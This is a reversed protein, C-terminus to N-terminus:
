FRKNKLERKAYRPEFKEIFTAKDLEKFGVGVADPADDPAQSGKEFALFQDIAEIQDSNNKEKINWFVWKRLFVGLISEIHDFKNGYSKKNAIIAIHYGRDDGERDFDNVFDDQAFLGDFLYRIKDIEHLKKDQYLDYLWSAAIRRSTQRCFSYIIHYERKIKGILFLAKYDGKDKYSLDGIFILAEYKSLALMEKHQMDEAKFVKGESVHIHMYERLFSRPNKIYKDRWYKATTKESWTPKFNILDEVACVTFIEFNTVENNDKDINQFHLFKQKLRNTISNKHFNNNAFVFRETSDDAADFCGFVEELIYDVSEGMIRDSNVHKKTDVDDNTIYDPRQSGERLGRPSQGFGLSMFRIGDSTYFNGDAWDGKKFKNGYDNILRQNYMLEAQIDSLLQKAKTETEGILLMFKLEGLVLYLYLPIGMNIHVSKGGSRFIEALLKVKKNRIIRDALRRHYRACKVKAYHPFHEEFWKIYGHGDKKKYTELRKHKAIANESTDVVTSKFVRQAHVDYDAIIKLWKSDM